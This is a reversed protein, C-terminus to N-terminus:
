QKRGRKRRHLEFAMEPNRQMLLKVQEPQQEEVEELREM